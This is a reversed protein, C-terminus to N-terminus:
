SYCIANDSNFAYIVWVFHRRYFSISHKNNDSTNFCLNAADLCGLSNWRLLFILSPIGLMILPKEEVVLRLISTVLGFGHLIPNQTSTSIDGNRYKCTSSVEEIKFHHKQADLLIQLSAGMGTESVSLKEIAERNYARFGSQSDSVASKSTSNLLKTIVKAGVKRYYPMEATGKDEIFRSAIVIDASGETIPKVVDPIEMATHQGDGDITVLVDADFDLFRKFLSKIASGYGSNKKHVLVDACLKSAIAATMDSSGDDCVIVIDSFKKAEIVVKAISQEENFAPIGVAVVPKAYSYPTSEIVINPKNAVVM